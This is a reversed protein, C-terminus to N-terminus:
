LAVVASCAPLESSSSVGPHLVLGAFFDPLFCEASFGPSLHRLSTPRSLPPLIEGQWRSDEIKLSEASSTLVLVLGSSQACAHDGAITNALPIGKYQWRAASPMSSPPLMHWPYYFSHPFFGGEPTSDTFFPHHSWGLVPSPGQLWTARSASADPVKAPSFLQM